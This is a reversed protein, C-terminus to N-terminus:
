QLIMRSQYAGESLGSFWCCLSAATLVQFYSAVARKQNSLERFQCLSITLMM